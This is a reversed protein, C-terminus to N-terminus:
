QEAENQSGVWAADGAEFVVTHVVLRLAHELHAPLGDRERELLLEAELLAVLAHREPADAGRGEEARERSGLRARGLYLAAPM